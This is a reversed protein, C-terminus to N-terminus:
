NIQANKIFIKAGYKNMQSFNTINTTLNLTFIIHKHRLFYPSM